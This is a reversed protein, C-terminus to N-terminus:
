VEHEPLKKSLATYPQTVDRLLLNICEIEAAIDWHGALRFQLRGGGDEGPLFDLALLSYPVSDDGQDRLTSALSLVDSVLLVSGVREYSGGLRRDDIREWRIRNLLLALQRSEALHRIDAPMFLSDQVLASMVQLDDVDVAALRLQRDSADEYRADRRKM